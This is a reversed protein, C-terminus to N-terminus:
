CQRGARARDAGARGGARARALAPPRRAAPPRDGREPRPRRRAAGGRLGAGAGAGRGRRRARGLPRRLPARGPRRRPQLVRPLRLQRAGPHRADGRPGGGQRRPVALRLSQRAARRRRPRPRDRAPGAALHGRLDDARGAHRRAAAAAARARARLLPGRRLRRLEAPLAQPLPGEGRRRRLRRLRQLSRPRVLAHRRARDARHVGERDRAAVGRGRARVGPAAAPGRAPLRHRRARPLPRARAGAARADALGSLIRERNGDLDGVVANIQALALRM